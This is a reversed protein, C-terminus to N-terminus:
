ITHTGTGTPNTTVGTQGPEPIYISPPCPTSGWGGSWSSETCSHSQVGDYDCQKTTLKNSAPTLSYTYGIIVGQNNRTPVATNPDTMCDKCIKDLDQGAKFDQTHTDSTTKCKSPDTSSDNPDDARTATQVAITLALAALLSVSLIKKSTKPKKM